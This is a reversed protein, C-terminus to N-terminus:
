PAGDSVSTGSGQKEVLGFETNHEKRLKIHKEIFTAVFGLCSVSVFVLWVTRMAQSYVNIVQSRSPEPLDGIRQSGGHLGAAYTYAAGDALLQRVSHDEIANLHANIQGNFTISSITVGWVFRFTRVFAFTGTAVAVDSESLAALTSPLSVTFISGTGGAAIIQFGIWAGISTERNLMSFLGAGAASLAGDQGIPQGIAALALIIRWNNWSFGATHNGGMILGFFISVMSPIFIGNGLLDVRGLAAAWSRSREYKVRLLFVMSVLGVAAVPLNIWFIWRWGAHSQALAGGIIPGATNGIAATSLLASLYPGRHRPPILDCMIIEPLVYLGGTGLGQIVRAVILTAANRAGGALGSGVFFLIISAFFPNRRGFVNSIQGYLPQPVTSAFLYSNAIWVYQSSGGIERTITPLSTTIISSDLASLFSLLALVLFVAWIRWTHEFEEPLNVVPQIESVTSRVQQSTDPQAKPEPGSM